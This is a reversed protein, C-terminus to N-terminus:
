LSCCLMGGEWSSLSHLVFMVSVYVYVLFHMSLSSLYVVVGLKDGAFYSIYFDDDYICSFSMCM